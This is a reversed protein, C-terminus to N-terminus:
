LDFAVRKAGPPQTKPGFEANMGFLDCSDISGKDRSCLVHFPGPFYESRCCRRMARSDSDVATHDIPGDDKLSLFNKSFRLPAHRDRGSMLPANLIMCCNSIYM